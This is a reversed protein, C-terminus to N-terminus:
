QGFIGTRSLSQLQQLNSAGVLSVTVGAQSSVFRLALEALTFGNAAAQNRYSALQAEKIQIEEPSQCYSSLNVESADKVLLGNALCERAIV